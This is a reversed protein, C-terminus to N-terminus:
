SVNVTRRISISKSVEGPPISILLAGEFKEALPMGYQAKLNEDTIIVFNTGLKAIVDAADLYSMYEIV